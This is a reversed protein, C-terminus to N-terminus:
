YQAPLGRPRYQSCIIQCSQSPNAVAGDRGRTNASQDARSDARPDGRFLWYVERLDSVLCAEDYGSEGCKAAECNGKCHFYKDAGIWRPAIMEDYARRRARRACDRQKMEALEGPPPVGGDRELGTPDHFSIPNGNVYAYTNIGGALGIPDSQTYRGVAPDYGDRFYNYITPASALRVTEPGNSTPTSPMAM